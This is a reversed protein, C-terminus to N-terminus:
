PQLETLVTAVELSQAHGNSDIWTLTVIATKYGTGASRLDPGTEVLRVSRAFAPSSAVAPEPPYHSESVYDYGRTASHRDAIIDELRETALWRAQSFRIPDIRDVAARRLAFMMPPVAVALIVLAAITEVLTFGHEGTRSPRLAMHVM